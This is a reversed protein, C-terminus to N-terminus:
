LTLSVLTDYSMTDPNTAATPETALADGDVEHRHVVTTRQLVDLGEVVGLDLLHRHVHGVEDSVPRGRRSM